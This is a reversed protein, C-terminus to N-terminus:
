AVKHPDPTLATISLLCEASSVLRLGKPLSEGLMRAVDSRDPPIFKHLMPLYEDGLGAETLRSIAEERLVESVDRLSDGTRRGLQAIAYAAESTMAPLDLMAKLWEAAKESAVICALPGYLPIRSGVRGLSWLWGTDTPDKIIRSLLEDGLAARTSGHLHELSALLRWGEHEIQSNLRPRKKKGVALMAAYKRYLEQQQSANVGGAVRRWLILWEAENQVDRPFAPGSLSLKRLQNLRSDDRPWGFGPRLCFGLLNLWRIEHRPTKRRGEAFEILVDCLRRIIDVPWAERRAGVASELRSVLAEPETAVDLAAEEKGFVARILQVATELADEPVESSPKLTPTCSRKEAELHQAQAEEGRLEFQLRWRHPSNVSECWLELTGVETFSARLRVALEVERMKKGYRLLTVLPAHRHVEDPALVVVEGHADHRLRSSFLTFSVPRNALAAFDQDLLPLTTGEQVGSPLVCVGQVRDEARLGVYYTRANGARVRIGDGRRVQGYHAAGKAVATDM